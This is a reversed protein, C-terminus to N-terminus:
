LLSSTKDLARLVSVDAQLRVVISAWFDGSQSPGNGFDQAWSGPSGGPIRFCYAYSSSICRCM